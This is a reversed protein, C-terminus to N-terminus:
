RHTVRAVACLMEGAFHRAGPPDDIKKPRLFSNRIEGGGGRRVTPRGVDAFSERVAAGRAELFAIRGDRDVREVIGAHDACAPEAGAGGVDFFVVDGPEAEAPAILRHSTRLYAFLAAASGDTGFRLGAARLARVVLAAGADGRPPQPRRPGHVELRAAHFVSAPLPRTRVDAACGLAWLGAAALVASRV